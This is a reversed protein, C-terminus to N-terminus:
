ENGGQNFLAKTQRSKLLYFVFNFLAMMMGFVIFGGATQGFISLGLAVLGQRIAGILTIALTFGLGMSVGDIASLLVGNKSAYAEARGLIICNVVILPIFAGISKNLDPLFKAM